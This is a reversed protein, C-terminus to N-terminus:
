GLSRVPQKAGCTPSRSHIQDRVYSVRDLYRLSQMSCSMVGCLSGGILGRRVRWLACGEFVRLAVVRDPVELLPCWKPEVLSTDFDAPLTKAGATQLAQLANLLKGDEHAPDGRLDLSYKRCDLPQLCALGSTM